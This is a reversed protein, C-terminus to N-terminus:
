GIEELVVKHAMLDIEVLRAKLEKRDGLLGILVLKDIEPKIYAVDELILEEKDGKKLFATSQCM